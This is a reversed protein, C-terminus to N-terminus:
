ESYYYDDVNRDKAEKRIEKVFDTLSGLHQWEANDQVVRTFILGGSYGYRPTYVHVTRHKIERFKARLSTAAPGHGMKAM